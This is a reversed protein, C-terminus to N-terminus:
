KAVVNFRLADEYKVAQTSSTGLKLVLQYNNAVRAGAPIVGSITGNRTEGPSLTVPMPGYVPNRGFRAGNPLYVDAWMEVAAMESSRNALTYSCNLTEGRRVNSTATSFDVSVWPYGSYADQHGRRTDTWLPVIWGDSSAVGIYEGLLGAPALALPMSPDWPKGTGPGALANLAAGANPDSSVTSIRINPSFTRGGDFSQTLYCDFLYNAPDNRRDLFVITIVGYQDITLWPHFQDRELGIPDDNVRVPTSWTDGRNRSKTLFIDLGNSGAEDAYAIYIDGNFPGGSLDVDMAPYPFVLIGGNISSGPYLSVSAVPKDSGFTAGGDTSRDFRIASPTYRNWAIYVEGNTGV